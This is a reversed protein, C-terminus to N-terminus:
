KIYILSDSITNFYFLSDSFPYYHFNFIPVARSKEDIILQLVYFGHKDEPKRKVLFKLDEGKRKIETTKREVFSVNMIKLYIRDPISDMQQVEQIDNNMLPAISKRGNNNQFCSTFVFFLTYIWIFKAKM